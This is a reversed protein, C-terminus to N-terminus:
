AALQHTARRRSRFVLGTLGMALLALSGPEPVANLPIAPSALTGSASVSAGTQTFSWRLSTDTAVCENGNTACGGAQTGVLNGPTYIGRTFVNLFDASQDIIVLESATYTGNSTGDGIISWTSFDTLDLAGSLTFFTGPIFENYDGTNTGYFPTTVTILGPDALSAGQITVGFTGITSSGEIGVLAAYSNLTLLSGGIAIVAVALTKKLIRKM